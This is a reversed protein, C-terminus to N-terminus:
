QLARSLAHLSFADALQLRRGNSPETNYMTGLASAFNRHRLDLM